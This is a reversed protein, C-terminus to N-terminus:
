AQVAASAAEVAQNAKVLRQLTPAVLVPDGSKKAEAAAGQAAAQEALADELKAKAEERAKVKALDAAVDEDTPQGIPTFGHSLLTLVAKDPVTVVGKDNPVYNRGEFSCGESGAPAQMKM